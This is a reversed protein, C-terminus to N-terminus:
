GGVGRDGELALGLVHLGALGGGDHLRGLGGLGVPQTDFQAAAGDLGGLCGASVGGLDDAHQDGGRDEEEGEAREGGRQQGDGGGQDTHPGGVRADHQEAVDHGDGVEGGHE